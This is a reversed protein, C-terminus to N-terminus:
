LNQIASYTLPVIQPEGSGESPVAGEALSSFCVAGSAFANRIAAGFSDSVRENHIARRWSNSAWNFEGSITEEPPPLNDWDWKDEYSFSRKDFLDWCLNRLYDYNPAEDFKLNRTYRIFTAMVSPMGRCLEEVSTNIKKEYIRQRKQRSNRAKMNQWPLRGALFYILTYALSELDDRRSPVTFPM